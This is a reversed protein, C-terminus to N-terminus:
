SGRLRPDRHTLPSREQNQSWSGDLLTTLWEQFILIMSQPLAVVLRNQDKLEMTQVIPGHVKTSPVRREAVEHCMDPHQPVIAANAGSCVMAYCEDSVHVSCCAVSPVNVHDDLILMASTLGVGETPVNESKRRSASCCGNSQRM